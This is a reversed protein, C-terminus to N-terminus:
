SHYDSLKPKDRNLIRNIDQLDIECNEFIHMEGIIICQQCSTFSSVSGYNHMFAQLDSGKPAFQYIYQFASKSYARFGSTVTNNKQLHNGLAAYRHQIKNFLM